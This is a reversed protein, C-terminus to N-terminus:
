DEEKPKHPIECWHTPDRNFKALDWVWVEGRELFATHRGFEPHYALVSRDTDPVENATRKWETKAAAGARWAEEMLQMVDYIHLTVANEYESTWRNLAYKAAASKASKPYAPAVFGGLDVGAKNTRKMRDRDHWVAANFETKVAKPKDPTSM